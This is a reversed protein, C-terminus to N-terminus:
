GWLRGVLRRFRPEARLADFCPEVQLFVMWPAREGLARELGRAAEDREGLAKRLVFINQTLNSEEVATRPWIRRLLEEKALIHGATRYSPRVPVEAM